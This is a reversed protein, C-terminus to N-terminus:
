REPSSVNIDAPKNNEEPKSIPEEEISFGGNHSGKQGAQAQKKKSSKM